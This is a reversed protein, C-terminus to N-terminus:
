VEFIGVVVGGHLDWTLFKKVYIFGENVVIWHHTNLIREILIIESHMGFHCRIHTFVGLYDSIVEKNGIRCTDLLPNIFFWAISQQKLYVLDSGHRLWYFSTIHRLFCTPTHHDWMARSFSFVVKYSIKNYSKRSPLNLCTSRTSWFSQSFIVLQQPNFLFKPIICQICPLVKPIWTM